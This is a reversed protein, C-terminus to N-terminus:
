VSDSAVYRTNVNCLNLQRPLLLQCLDSSIDLFKSPSQHLSRLTVNYIVKFLTFLGMVAM